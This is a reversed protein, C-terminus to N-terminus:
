TKQVPKHALSALLFCSALALPTLIALYLPAYTSPNDLLGMWISLGVAMVAFLQSTPLLLILTPYAKKIVGTLILL